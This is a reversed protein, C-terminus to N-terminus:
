ALARKVKEFIGIWCNSRKVWKGEKLIECRWAGDKGQIARSNGYQHATETGKNISYISAKMQRLGNNTEIPTIRCRKSFLDLM